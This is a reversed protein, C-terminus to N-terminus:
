KIEEWYVRRNFGLSIIALIELILMLLFYWWSKILTGFFIGLLTGLWYAFNIESNEELNWEVVKKFRKQNQLTAKKPVVEKKRVKSVSKGAINNKM